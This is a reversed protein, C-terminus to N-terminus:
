SVPVMRDMKVELFAHGDISPFIGDRRGLPQDSFVHPPQTWAPANRELHLESFVAPGVDVMAMIRYVLVSGHQHADLEERAYGPRGLGHDRLRWVRRRVAHDEGSRFDQGPSRCLAEGRFSRKM